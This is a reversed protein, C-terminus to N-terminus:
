RRIRSTKNMNENVQISFGSIHWFSLRNWKIFETIPNLVFYLKKTNTTTTVTDRLFTRIVIVRIIWREYCSKTGLDSLSVVKHLM